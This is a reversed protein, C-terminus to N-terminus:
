VKCKEILKIFNKKEEIKLKLVKHEWEKHIIKRRFLAAKEM